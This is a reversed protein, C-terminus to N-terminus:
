VAGLSAPVSVAQPRSPRTFGDAVAGALELYARRTAPRLDELPTQAGAQLMEDWPIRVTAACRERFHNEIVDLQLLGVDRVANIVAVSGRVLHAYGHQELWDLTGAAVRAGDLAPPMVVVLQDAERLIGQIASDLIGTGTDLLLLNYHRDLLRIAEHYDREGLAQSIRPDDDSAIVELRTEIDQSTFSRIDAYREIRDRQALLSTVTAATERRVRHGLSGADPNADLALVRDGRHAAFTHGLMLTTTTKGAGGKRSLVVVRRSGSVPTRVRSVLERECIEAVSPGPNITGFSASYVARRWGRKPPRPRQRLMSAEEFAEATLPAEDAARANDDLLSTLPIDPTSNASPEVTAESPPQSRAPRRMRRWLHESTRRAAGGARVAILAMGLVPLLVVVAGILGVLAALLDGTGLADGVLVLQSRAAALANVVIRPSLFVLLALNAVLVPVFMSAWAAVVVRSGPRLAPRVGRRRSALGRLWPGVLSFLDPVGAVDSIIWYGDLRVVPMLQQLAELHTLLAVVLLPGYGTALYASVVVVVFIGNFYIGALDTHLRGRRGLRYVDTVDTFFAPLVLYIGYGIIGPAAGSRRCATAHGIEHFLTSVLTLCIVVLVAAPNALVGALATLVGGRRAVVVDLVLVALLASVVTPTACLPSLAGAVRQVVHAPLLVGRGALSLLPRSRPMPGDPGRGDAVLGLPRLKADALTRLAEATVARGYKTSVREALEVLPDGDANQLILYLLESLQAVQGDARRVLYRGDKYGSAPDRGLM